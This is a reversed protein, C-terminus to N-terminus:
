LERIYRKGIAIASDREMVLPLVLTDADASNGVERSYHADATHYEKTSSPDLYQVDVSVPVDIEPNHETTIPGHPPEQGEERGYMEEEPIDFVAAGNRMKLVLKGDEPIIDFGYAEALSAVFPAVAERRDFIFGEMLTQAGASFDLRAPDIQEEVTFLFELVEDLYQLKPELEATINGITQRGEQIVYNQAIFLSLEEYAPTNSSDRGPLSLLIDSQPQDSKGLFLEFPVQGNTALNGTVVGSTSPYPAADYFPSPDDEDSPYDIDAVVGTRRPNFDDTSPLGAFLYIRDLGVNHTTHLNKIKITNTGEVCTIDIERTAYNTGGTNNLTYTAPAGGNVTLEIDTNTDNRYYIVLTRTGSVNSLVSNFQVAGNGPSQLTIENGNSAQAQAAVATPATFTNGSDEGEYFNSTANEPILDLIIQDDEKVQRFSKMENATFAIAFTKTYSYNTTPPTGGQGKKGGSSGPSSSKLEKTRGYDIMVGAMRVRRGFAYPFPEGEQAITFRLDGQKGRDQPQQKGGRPTLAFQAVALGVEIAALIAIQPM